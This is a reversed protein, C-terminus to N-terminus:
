HDAVRGGEPSLPRGEDAWRMLGGSMSYAEFGAARFAKAAMDSRGGMRCYFVVPRDREVTSAESSLNVLEIHRTGEIHGAEREHPERVDIVQLAPDRALGEAVREPQVEIDPSESHPTNM